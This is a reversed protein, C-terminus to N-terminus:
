GAHVVGRVEPSVQGDEALPRLQLPVGAAAAVGERRQRRQREELGPQGGSGPDRGAARSVVPGEPHHLEWVHEGACRQPAPGGHVAAGPPFPIVTLSQCSHSEKCLM